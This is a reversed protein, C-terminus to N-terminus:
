YIQRCPARSRLGPWPGVAAAAKSAHIRICFTVANVWWDLQNRSHPRLRHHAPTAIRGRGSVLSTVTALAMALLARPRPQGTCEQNVTATFKCNRSLNAPSKNCELFDILRHRRLAATGAARRSLGGIM